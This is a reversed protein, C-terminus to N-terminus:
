RRVVVTGTMGEHLVCVYQFRGTRGFAITFTGRRRVGSDGFAVSAVNHRRRGSKWTWKVKDGVGVTVTKPSFYDNRVSVPHTAALAGTSGLAVAALAVLAVRLPQRAVSM